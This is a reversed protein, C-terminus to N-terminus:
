SKRVKQKKIKKPLTKTFALGRALWEALGERTGYGEPSIFVFGKLPVGTLDMKRAYPHSLAEEYQDPGVRVSLGNKLDAGCMMNGRHMFCLGGFMNQERIDPVQALIERIRQNLAQDHAM